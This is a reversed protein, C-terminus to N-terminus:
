RFFYFALSGLLILGFVIMMKSAGGNTCDHQDHNEDHTGTGRMQNHNNHGGGCCGM